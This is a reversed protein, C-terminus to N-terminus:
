IRNSEQLRKYAKALSNIIKKQDYNRIKEMDLFMSFGETNLEFYNPNRGLNKRLDIVSYVQVPRAYGKVQIEGKDACSVTDKVLSYTTHSILIEGPEASSELRSALNVETGLLTYDLRSETGFNGVTCFGTNIGMRVHLPQQIGQNKWRLQLERMRKQMAIAMSVCALCDENAGRSVPDGFFVMIADGIFKDITGGFKLAIDSMETLYSNLLDTLTDAEMEEALESFGSIDSFFVTIKKRQTGLKVTKGSLIANRLAPSLYKSLKYNSLKLEVKQNELSEIEVVLQRRKRNHLIGKGVALTALTLLAAVETALEGEVVLIPRNFSYGALIGLLLALNDSLWRRFGAGSIAQIQVMVAFMAGTLLSIDVLSIFVGILLADIFGLVEAATKERDVKAFSYLLWGSAVLYLVAALACVLATTNHPDSRYHLALTCIVGLTAVIRFLMHQSMESDHRTENMELIDMGALTIGKKIFKM